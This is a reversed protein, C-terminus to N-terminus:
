LRNRWRTENIIPKNNFGKVYDNKYIELMEKLDAGDAYIKVNLDNLSKM